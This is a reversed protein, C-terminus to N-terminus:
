NAGYSRGAEAKKQWNGAANAGGGLLGGGIGPIAGAVSGALSGIQSMMSPTQTVSWDAKNRLLTDAMGAGQEYPFMTTTMRQTYEADKRLQELAREVGGSTSLANLRNLISQEGLQNLTSAASQKNQREQAAYPAMTAMAQSQIDGLLRGLMDRGTSSSTGGRIQLSRGLRNSELGGKRFVEDLMARYEPIDMINGSDGVVSRLYDLGEAESKGYDTAMQSATQEQGSLGAIQQTPISPTGAQLTSSLWQRAAKEEPTQLVKTKVSSSFMGM